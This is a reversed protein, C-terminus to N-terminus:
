EVEKTPRLVIENISVHPPQSLAFVVSAGVDAPTLPTVMELMSQFRARTAADAAHEFLETEVIGPSVVTVRINYGTGEKRLSESFTNVAAKTAAYAPSGPNALRASVSSINVVHGADQEIMLAFAAHTVAMLGMINTEFMARWDALKAEATRASLMVGASNVVSDLRGCREAITRMCTAISAADSVDLAVAHATGGETTIEDVLKTLRDQRRAAVVVTAGEAALARAVGEGIGSSAGTVLSVHGAFSPRSSLM